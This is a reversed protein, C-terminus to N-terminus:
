MNKTPKTKARHRGMLEAAYLWAFTAVVAFTGVIPDAVDNIILFTTTIDALVIALTIPWFPSRGAFIKPKWQTM